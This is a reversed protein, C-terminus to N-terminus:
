ALAPTKGQVWCPIRPAMAVPPPGCVKVQAPGIVTGVVASITISLLTM